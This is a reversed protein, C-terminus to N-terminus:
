DAYKAEEEAEHKRLLECYQCTCDPSFHGYDRMALAVRFGLREIDEDFEIFRDIAAAIKQSLRIGPEHILFIPKDLEMAYAIPVVWDGAPQGRLVICFVNCSDIVAKLEPSIL